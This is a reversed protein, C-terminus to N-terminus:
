KQMKSQNPCLVRAEVLLDIVLNTFETINSDTRESHSVNNEGLARLEESFLADDSETILDAKVGAAYFRTSPRSQQIRSIAANIRNIPYRSSTSSIGEPINSPGDTLTMVTTPLNMGDVMNDEVYEIAGYSSTLTSQLEDVSYALDDLGEVATTCSTDLSIKLSAPRDQLGPNDFLYPYLVLAINFNSEQSKSAGVIFQLAHVM